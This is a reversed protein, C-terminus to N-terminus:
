GTVFVVQGRGTLVERFREHLIDLERARGVLPTLGREVAADLRSRRGRPRLVEHARVPAHGKVPQEGLDVTEFFGGIARLTSESVLVSGPRAAQQLRAAVNTTDGVATYDMRLDDGIRGVVVPGTNLGIRMRIAPGQRAEIERSLDRMARQIGLAAHVARRASDEHAIPAGFLAMVGDGTYQNITGEFRHVETAIMEFCRDVIAHIEEPDRQEALASFGALDAFLVTVQRREGELASRAKLIKEALHKPTYGVKVISSIGSGQAPTPPASAGSPVQADSVLQHGCENCFRSGPLNSHKCAPCIADLRVGCGRCFKAGPPNETGCRPCDMALIM